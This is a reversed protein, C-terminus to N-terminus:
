RFISKSMLRRMFREQFARPGRKAEGPGGKLGKQPLKQPGLHSVFPFLFPGLLSITDSPTEPRGQPRGQSSKPARMPPKQSGGPREQPDKPSQPSANQWDPPPDKPERRRRGVKEDSEGWERLKRRMKDSSEGWKKRVKRGVTEQSEARKRGVKEGSEELM